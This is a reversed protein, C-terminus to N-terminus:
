VNILGRQSLVTVLIGMNLDNIGKFAFIKFFKEQGGLREMFLGILEDMFSSSCQRVQSFDLVIKDGIERFESVMSLLKSKLERAPARGGTWGNCEHFVNVGSDHYKEALATLFTFGTDSIFTDDLSVPKNTDFVMEVITGCIKKNFQKELNRDNALFIVKGKGSYITLVGNNLKLIDRTGALGNGQGITDDRTVGKKTATIIADCDSQALYVSSLSKQIGQGLDGVFVHLKNESPYYQAVVVGHINSGAHNRMNDIVENISWELSSMLDPANNIRISIMECINDVINKIDQQEKVLCIPLFKSETPHRSFSECYNIGCINYLDMRALYDNKCYNIKIDIGKSKFFIMVLCLYGLFSPRIFVNPAFDFQINRTGKPISHLEQSLFDITGCEKNVTITYNSM